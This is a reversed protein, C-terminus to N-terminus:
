VYHKKLADARSNALKARTLEQAEAVARTGVDDPNGKQVASEIYKVDGDRYGLDQDYAPHNEAPGCQKVAKQVDTM